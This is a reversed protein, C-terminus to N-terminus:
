FFVRKADGLNPGEDRLYVLIQKPIMERIASSWKTVIIVRVQHWNFLLARLGNLIVDLM